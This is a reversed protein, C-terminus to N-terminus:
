KENEASRSNEGIRGCYLGSSINLISTAIQEKM